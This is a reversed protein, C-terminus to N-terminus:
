MKKSFFDKTEEQVAIGKEELQEAFKKNGTKKWLEFIKLISQEENENFIVEENVKWLISVLSPFKESLEQFLSKEKKKSHLNAVESYSAGGMDIYYSIDVLKRELSEAFYGAIYLSFDGLQRFQEGRASKTTEQSAKGFRMALTEEMINGNKDKPFLKESSIFNSLLHVLYSKSEESVQVDMADASDSVLSHFYENPHLTLLSPSSRDPSKRDM